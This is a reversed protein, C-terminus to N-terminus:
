CSDNTKRNNRDRKKRLRLKKLKVGARIEALLDKDSGNPKAATVVNPAPPVMGGPPPPAMGGPPPPAM